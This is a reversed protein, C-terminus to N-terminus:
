FVKSGDQVRAKRALKPTDQLMEKVLEFDGKASYLFRSCYNVQLSNHHIVNEKTITKTAKQDIQNLLKLVETLGQEPEGGMLVELHHQEVSDRIDQVFSPCIFSLCLRPSVPFHVEIGKLALGLNGRGERPLNNFKFVPNDSLLFSEGKPAKVLCLHKSILHPLLQEPTEWLMDISTEKSNESSLQKLFEDAQSDPEVEEEVFKDLILQSFETLSERVSNVRMMQVLTFYCLTERQHETLNAVTEEKLIQDIVPAVDTEISGLAFEMQNGDKTHHYFNNEHGVDRVHSVFSRESKLDFIHLRKKKGLTFNSLLFQPVYHQKKPESTAM